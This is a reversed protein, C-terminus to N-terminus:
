RPQPSPSQFDTLKAVFVSLDPEHDWVRSPLIEQLQREIFDQVISGLAHLYHPPHAGQGAIEVGTQGFFSAGGKVM